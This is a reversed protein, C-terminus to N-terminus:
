VGVALALRLGDADADIEGLRDALGDLEADILGEADADILGLAEALGLALTLGDLEGEAAGASVAPTTSNSAVMLPESQYGSGSVGMAPPVAAVKVDLAGPMHDPVTEPQDSTRARIWPLTMPAMVTVPRPVAAAEQHGSLFAV